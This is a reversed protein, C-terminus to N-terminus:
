VSRWRIWAQGGGGGGGLPVYIHWRSLDGGIFAAKEGM